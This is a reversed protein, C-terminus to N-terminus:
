PAWRSADDRKKVVATSQMGQLEDVGTEMRPLSYRRASYVWQRKLADNAKADVAVPVSGRKM